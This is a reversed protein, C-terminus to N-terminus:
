RLTLHLTLKAITSSVTKRQRQGIVGTLSLVAFFTINIIQLRAIHNRWPMHSLALCVCAKNM